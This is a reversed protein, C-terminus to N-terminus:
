QKIECDIDGAIIGVIMDLHYQYNKQHLKIQPHNPDREMLVARFAVSSMAVDLNARLVSKERPTLRMAGESLRLGRKQFRIRYGM